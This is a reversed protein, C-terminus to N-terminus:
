HWISPKANKKNQLNKFDVFLIKKLMNSMNCVIFSINNNLDAVIYERQTLIKRHM